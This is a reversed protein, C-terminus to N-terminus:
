SDGETAAGAAVSLHEDAWAEVASVIPGLAAWADPPLDAAVISLAIIGRERQYPLAVTTSV